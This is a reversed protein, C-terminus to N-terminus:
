AFIEVNTGPVFLIVICLDENRKHLVELQRLKMVGKNRNGNHKKAATVSFTAVFDFHLHMRQIDFIVTGYVMCPMVRETPSIATRTFIPWYAFNTMKARAAGACTM